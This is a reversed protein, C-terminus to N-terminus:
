RQEMEQWGGDTGGAAIEERWGMMEEDPASGLVPFLLDVGAWCCSPSKSISGHVSKSSPAPDPDPWDKVLAAAILPLSLPVKLAVLQSLPATLILRVSRVYIPVISSSIQYLYIHKWKNVNAEWIALGDRWLKKGSTGFHKGSLFNCSTDLKKFNKQSSTYLEKKGSRAICMMYFLVVFVWFICFGRPVM